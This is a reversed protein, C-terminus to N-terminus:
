YDYARTYISLAPKHHIEKFENRRISRKSISRKNTHNSYRYIYAKEEKLWISLKEGAKKILLCCLM